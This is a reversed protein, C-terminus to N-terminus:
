ANAVEAIVKNLSNKFYSRKDAASPMEKFYKTGILDNAWDNFGQHGLIHIAKPILVEVQKTLLGNTKLDEKVLAFEPSLLLDQKQADSFEKKGKNYTNDTNYTHLTVERYSETLERYVKKDKSGLFNPLKPIEIGLHIESETLKILGVDQFDGLLRRLVDPTTRLHRRLTKPSFRFLIRGGDEFFRDRFNDSKLDLEGYCLELLLYFCAYGRHGHKDILQMMQNGESATTTHIFWKM